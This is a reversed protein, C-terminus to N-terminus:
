SRELSIRYPGHEVIAGTVKGRSDLQFEIPAGWPTEFRTEARTVLPGEPMTGSKLLLAEGERRIVV